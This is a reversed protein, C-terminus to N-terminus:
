VQTEGFQPDEGCALTLGGDYNIKPVYEDTFSRDSIVVDSDAATANSLFEHFHPLLYEPCTTDAGGHSGEAM